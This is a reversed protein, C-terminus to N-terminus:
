VGIFHTIHLFLLMGVYGFSSPIYKFVNRDIEVGIVFKIQTRLIYWRKTFFALPIVM